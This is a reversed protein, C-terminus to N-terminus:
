RIVEKLLKKVAPNVVIQIMISEDDSISLTIFDGTRETRVTMVKEDMTKGIILGRCICTKM